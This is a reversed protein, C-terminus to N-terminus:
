IFFTLRGKSFFCPLEQDIFIEIIRIDTCFGLRNNSM